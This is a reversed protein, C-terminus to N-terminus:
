ENNKEKKAKTTMSSMYWNAQYWIEEKRLDRGNNVTFLGGEGNPKYDHNLFRYIREVCYGRRFKSDTIQSLGLSKLMDHFWIHTRDGYPEDAMIHVECRRALAVMMELVSCPLRDMEHSVEVQSIGNEDAFSYRLCIGDDYRNGDNPITYSFSITDLLRMLEHQDEAKVLHVMWDFYLQKINQAM